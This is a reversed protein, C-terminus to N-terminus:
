KTWGAAEAISQAVGPTLTRHRPVMVTGVGSKRFKDHKSGGVQEWGESLLRAVVKATNTEYPM